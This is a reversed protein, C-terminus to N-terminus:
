QISYGGDIVVNEGTVMQAAGSLLYLALAAVEEPQAFRGVPIQKKALEGREGAWAKRGLATEVITPSIANVTIGHPAWEM